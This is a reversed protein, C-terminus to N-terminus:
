LDGNCKKKIENCTWNGKACRKINQLGRVVKASFTQYGPGSYDGNNIKNACEEAEKRSTFVDELYGNSLIVGYYNTREM